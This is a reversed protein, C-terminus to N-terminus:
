SQYLNAELFRKRTSFFEPLLTNARDTQGPKVGLNVSAIWTQSTQKLRARICDMGYGKKAQGFKGEIPNREGPRVHDEVAQASPRGLPKASIKIGKEKLWKRNSRTSYIKDAIVKEPYYGFRNRYKEVYETLCTGENYADWSITDIFAFGDVMSLHINSGFEVRAGTKGRVIPRVHPQHISVIRHEVSHKQENFMELQQRYLTQIVWFQKQLKESLPFVTHADLMKHVSGINRRLYRLQKGIAKRLNKKSPNRNQAVHLYAKRALQRYTRPKKQHPVHLFDIIKETVERSENLLNLDTPYAINQPAVSADMLLTGKHPPDDESSHSKEAKKSQNVSGETKSINLIRLNMESILDDGLRKRIDVFLSPDFPPLKSFASYGLFFQMYINETIQSITERDDLNLLHKIIMAGIVVRPNLMPRGTSKVSVKKLYLSVLDDWPIQRALKVWRNEPDLNQSFPTEFGEIIMQNNSVYSPISARRRTPKNTKGQVEM